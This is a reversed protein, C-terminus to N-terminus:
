ESTMEAYDIASLGRVDRVHPDCGSMCLMQIIDQNGADAAKIM